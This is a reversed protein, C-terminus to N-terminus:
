CLQFSDTHLLVTSTQWEASTRRRRRECLESALIPPDTARVGAAYVDLTEALSEGVAKEIDVHLGKYEFQLEVSLMGFLTLGTVSPLQPFLGRRLLAIANPKVGGKDYPNGILDPLYQKLYEYRPLTRTLQCCCSGTFVQICENERKNDSQGALDSTDLLSQDLAAAIVTLNGHQYM